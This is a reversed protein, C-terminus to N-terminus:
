SVRRLGKFSSRLFSISRPIDDNVIEVVVDGPEAIDAARQIALDERIVVHVNTAGHKRLSESFVASIKGVQQTFKKRKDTIVPKKLYGDIKDYIIFEDFSQAIYKSTDDILADTRDYALRLVGIVKKDNEKLQGALEGIMKLSYKEHAYDALVTIGDDTIFRTLRGGEEDLQITMLDNRLEEVIIQGNRISFYGACIFLLNYLSPAYKGSFTWAVDNVNVVQIEVGAPTAIIVTNDKIFCKYQDSPLSDPSKAVTCYIKRVNNKKPIKAVKSVVLDDDANIVAWGDLDIATFIFEKADAIDQRSQIRASSGIHDELVNTFIGVKHNKYGLGPRASSGLAAELVAISDEVSGGRGNLLPIFKGPSVTPVLGCYNLSDELDMMLDGNIYAGTTDVRLVNKYKKRMLEDLIRVVTTKGKTGTVSIIPLRERM